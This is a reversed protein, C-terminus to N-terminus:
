RGLLLLAATPNGYVRGDGVGGVLLLQTGLGALAHQARAGGLSATTLRSRGDASFTEADTLVEGTQPDYGGALVIRGSDLTAVEADRRARALSAGASLTALGADAPDLQIALTELIGEKSDWGGLVLAGGDSTPACRHGRRPRASAPTTGTTRLSTWRDAVPEYVEGAALPELAAGDGGSGFGGYVLVRDDDTGPVGDPGPLVIVTHETRAFRPQSVTSARGSVVGEAGTEVRYIETRSTTGPGGTTPEVGGVLLVGWTGAGTPVVVARHEARAAPLSPLQVTESSVAGDASAPLVIRILEVSDLLGGDFGGTVLIEPPAGPRSPLLTAEHGCRAHALPSLEVFRAHAPDYYLVQAIATTTRGSGPAIGGTVLAAGGPLATIRARARPGGPPEPLALLSSPSASSAPATEASPSPSASSAEAAPIASPGRSGGACGALGALGLVALTGLLRSRGGRATGHLHTGGNAHASSRGRGALIARKTVSRWPM